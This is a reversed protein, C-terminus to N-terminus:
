YPLDKTKWKKCAGEGAIADGEFTYEYQNNKYRICVITDEKLNNKEILNKVEKDELFGDNQLEKITVYKKEESNLSLHQMGWNRAASVIQNKQTDNLKERTRNLTDTFVPIIVVVIMGLILIVALLEILTFANKKM